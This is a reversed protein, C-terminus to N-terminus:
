ELLEGLCFSEAQFKARTHASSRESSRQLKQVPCCLPPLFGPVELQSQLKKLLAAAAWFDAACFNLAECNPRLIQELVQQM